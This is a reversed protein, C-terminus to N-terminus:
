TTQNFVNCILVCSKVLETEVDITHMDDLCYTITHKTKERAGAIDEVIYATRENGSCSDCTNPIFATTREQGARHLTQDIYCVSNASTLTVTVTLCAILTYIKDMARELVFM